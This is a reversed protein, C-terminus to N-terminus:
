SEQNIKGMLHRGVTIKFREFGVAKSSDGSPILKVENKVQLTIPDYAIETVVWEGTTKDKFLGYANASFNSSESETENKSLLTESEELAESLFSKKAM